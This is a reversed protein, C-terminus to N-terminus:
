VSGGGGGVNGGVEREEAAQKAQEEPTKPPTIYAIASYTVNTGANFKQLYSCSAVVRKDPKYSVCQQFDSAGKKCYRFMTNVNFECTKREEGNVFIKIGRPRWNPTKEVWNGTKTCGGFLGFFGGGSICEEELNVSAIVQATINVTDRETANEPTHFVEISPAPRDYEEEGVRSGEGQQSFVAYSALLILVVAFVAAKKM